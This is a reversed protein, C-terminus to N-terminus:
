KAKSALSARRWPRAPRLMPMDPSKSVATITPAVWIRIPVAKNPARAQSIGPDDEIEVAHQQFALEGAVLMDRIIEGPDAVRRRGVLRHLIEHTKRARVEDAGEFLPDPAAEGLIEMGGPGLFIPPHQLFSQLGHDARDGEDFAQGGM